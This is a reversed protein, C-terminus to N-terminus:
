IGYSQGTHIHMRRQIIYIKNQNILKGSYEARHGYYRQTLKCGNNRPYKYKRCSIGYYLLSVSPKCVSQEHKHNRSHWLYAIVINLDSHIGQSKCYNGKCAKSSKRYQFSLLCIFPKHKPSQNNHCGIGLIICKDRSHSYTDCKKYKYEHGPLLPTLQKFMKHEHCKGTYEHEQGPYRCQKTLNCPNAAIVPNM